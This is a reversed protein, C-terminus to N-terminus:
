GTLSFELIGVPPQEPTGTNQVPNLPMKFIASQSTTLSPNGDLFPGTVYSPVGNARVYVWNSSYLVTKVNASSDNDQIATSNGSVYHSGLIGTTNQLWNLIAPNTQANAIHFCGFLMFVSIIKKM